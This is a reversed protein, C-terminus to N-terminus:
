WRDNGPRMADEPLRIDFRERIKRDTASAIHRPYHSSLIERVRAAAAQVIDPRGSEHWEGQARRDSIGPYLYESEMLSLTQPHGLYHGPDRVVDRIVEFSLTEETVEIGRLLRAINGLMDLIAFEITAIQVCLPIGQNKINLEAANFILSDLERADKGAFHHHLSHVFMPYSTKSIFPHGISVGEAGDKSRVRCITNERDRLLELTEIIVPDPFLERKLVPRKLVEDLASYDTPGPAVPTPASCSTLAAGVAAGGGLLAKNLFDRRRRM